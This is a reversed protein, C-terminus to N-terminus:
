VAPNGSMALASMTKMKAAGVKVEVAILQDGKKTAHIVVNDGLRVDKLSIATEMRAYKTAETLVVHQTKGDTTTVTISSDTKASVTGMVHIMGGHAYAISALMAFTLVVAFVYKM